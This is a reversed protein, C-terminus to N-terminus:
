TEVQTVPSLDRNHSRLCPRKPLRLQASSFQQLKWATQAACNYATVQKSDGQMGPTLDEWGCLRSLLTALDLSLRTFFLEGGPRGRSAQAKRQAKEVTLLRRWLRRQGCTWWARHHYWRHPTWFTHRACICPLHTSYRSFKM